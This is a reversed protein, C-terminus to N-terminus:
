GVGYKGSNVKEPGKGSPDGGRGDGSGWGHGIGNKRSRETKESAQVVTLAGSLGESAQLVTDPVCPM